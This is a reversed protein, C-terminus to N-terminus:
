LKIKLALGAADNIQFLSMKVNSKNKHMHPILIGVAAGIATGVIVDSTFHFLSKVRGYGVIAPPILAAAYLWIKGKMEPHYDAYVKAMFFSASATTSAHGSFFSNKTNGSVKESLPLEQYYARPRFRNVFAPGIPIYTFALSSVIQTEAFLIIVEKWDKAISKNLFLFIPLINTATFGFDSIHEWTDRNTLTQNLVGRDFAWVDNKNLQMITSEPIAPKNQLIYTLGLTNAVAGGLIFLGSKLKNVKYVKTTTLGQAYCQSAIFM